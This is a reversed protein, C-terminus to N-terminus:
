GNMRAQILQLQKESLVTDSLKKRKPPRDNCSLHLALPLALQYLPNVYRQELVSNVCQILSNGFARSTEKQANELAKAVHSTMFSQISRYSVHTSCRGSSPTPLKRKALKM